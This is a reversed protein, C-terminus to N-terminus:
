DAIGNAYRGNVITTDAAVIKSKKEFLGTVFSMFARSRLKQARKQSLEIDAISLNAVPYMPDNRYTYM